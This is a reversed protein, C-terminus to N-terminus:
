LLDTTKQNFDKVLAKLEECDTDPEPKGEIIAPGKGRLLYEASISPYTECISRLTDFSVNREPNNIINYITQRNIGSKSAVEYPTIGLRELVEKIRGQIVGM